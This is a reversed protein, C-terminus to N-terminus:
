KADPGLPLRITFTAGSARESSEKDLEISGDHDDIVKRVIALGLGSGAPKDSTVFPEFLRDAIEAPM